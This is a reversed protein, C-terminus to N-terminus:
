PSKKNDTYLEKYFDVLVKLIDQEKNILTDQSNSYLTNISKKIM